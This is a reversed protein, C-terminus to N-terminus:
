CGFGLAEFRGGGLGFESAQPHSLLENLREESVTGDGTFAVGMSVMTGPCSQLFARYGLVFVSLDGLRFGRVRPLGLIGVQLM